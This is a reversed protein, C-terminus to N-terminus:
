GKESKGEQERRRVKDRRAKEGEKRRVFKRNRKESV